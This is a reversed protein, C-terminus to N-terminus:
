RIVGAVKWLLTLAIGGIIGLFFYMLDRYTIREKKIEAKNM